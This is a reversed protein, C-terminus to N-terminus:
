KIFPLVDTQRVSGEEMEDADEGEVAGDRLDITIWGEPKEMEHVRVQSPNPRRHGEHSYEANDVLLLHVLCVETLDHRGTGARISIKQPTYSDDKPHSLHISLKQILPFVATLLRSV